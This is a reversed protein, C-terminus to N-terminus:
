GWRGGCCIHRNEPSIIRYSGASFSCRFFRPSFPYITSWILEGPECGQREFLVAKKVGQAVSLDIVDTADLRHSTDCAKSRPSSGQSIHGCCISRRWPASCLCCSAPASRCAPRCCGRPLWCSAPVASTG